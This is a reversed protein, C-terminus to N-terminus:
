LQGTFSQHLLFAKLEDLAGMKRAMADCLLDSESRLSHSRSVLSAQSDLPPIPIELEKVAKCTLHPVTSGSRIVWFARRMRASNFFLSLYDGTVTGPKTSIVIMAHCNHGEHEQPVVASHGIHGSQVLLVDGERLISKSNRKNFADSVYTKEDFQLKNNKVHRALLYPVGNITYITRTPGVYGNTLRTVLDGLRSTRGEASAADLSATLAAEFAERANRLNKEANAKAAAIGEFAEDLIAVISRQEPLPPVPIEVQGLKSRSIRKRTTGTTEADVARLYEDSQSYFNFFEPLMATAKFRVITCDVATIMQEGTEPLLCSRGVPDPLRSILCDGPLVQTCNLRSFTKASIYRAKSERGKFVGEGINGTQILRIGNASQDKTEIWDGDAFVDCVEVLPKTAWGKKM